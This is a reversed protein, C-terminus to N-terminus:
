DPLWWTALDLEVAEFPAIRVKADAVHVVLLKWLGGDLKFVELTRALPDM